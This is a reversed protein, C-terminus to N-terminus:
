FYRLGNQQAANTAKTSQRADGFPRTLILYFGTLIFINIPDNIPSYFLSHLFLLFAAITYVAEAFTYSSLGDRLLSFLRNFVLITTLAYILLGLLGYRYFLLFPTIHINHVRGDNRLNRGPDSYRAIYTAGHGHGIIAQLPSTFHRTNYIIDIAEEFRGDISDDTGTAAFQRYHSDTVAQTFNTGVATWDFAIATIIVLSIM